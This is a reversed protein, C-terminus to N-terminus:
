KYLPYSITYNIQEASLLLQKRVRNMEALSENYSEFFDIFEILSINRKRFNENIGNLVESFDSNYIARVKQHEQISRRMNSWAETIEANIESQKVQQATEVIKTQVRAHQINGQNRNWFPLPLGFTLNVQNRFAGGNEDYAAGVSLDPVALSRQYRVNFAALDQQLEAMKWDARNQYALQILSDLSVLTEFRQWNVSSLDPVVYASTQLLVQLNRQQAQISQLLDTKENNLKIYATKLRVVDRLAINGKYAQEEFLNILTDLQHLQRDYQPLVQRDFYVSYMNSYLQFKLNRLLDELQRRVLTTNTKALALEASKKGGLLLLQEIAFAKQGNGSVQFLKRDQPNVANLETSFIPNPYLRAQIELAKQAEVDLQATLVYLNKELFQKEAQPMSFRLTDQAPVHLSILM